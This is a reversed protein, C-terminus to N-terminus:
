EARRAMKNSFISILGGLLVYGVLVKVMSLLQASVGAPHADGYGLTTLTVLSFYWPSLPTEYQGYHIPVLLNLFGFLLTAVAFVVAWRWISRGCDSTLWWLRYLLEHGAGRTRFEHLYNEDAVHRRFMWANSFDAERLDARLFTASDYHALNKFATRRLDAEVFCSRALDTGSLEADSIVAKTADVDVLRTRHLRAGRLNACRLDAADLRAGAFTAGDLQAEFLRAGELRANAFGARSAHMQEAHVGRLDAQLLEAGDLRAGVLKAGALNAGVLKCGRLDARTLDASALDCHSLDLARLDADVWKMGRLDRPREEAPESRLIELVADGDPRGPAPITRSAETM